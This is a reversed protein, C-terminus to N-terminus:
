RSRGSGSVKIIVLAIAVVLGLVFGVPILLDQLTACAFTNM